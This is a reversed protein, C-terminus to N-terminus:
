AYKPRGNPMHKLYIKSYTPHSLIEQELKLIQDKYVEVRQNKAEQSVGGHSMLEIHVINETNLQVFKTNLQYLHYYVWAGVDQRVFNYAEHTQIDQSMLGQAKYYEVFNEFDPIDSVEFQFFNEDDPIHYGTFRAGTKMIWRKKCLLFTTELQPLRLLYMGKHINSDCECGLLSPMAYALSVNPDGYFKDKVESLWDPNTLIVDDHMLLYSDTHIWPLAMSFVEAYGVRSWVRIVTLPMPRKNHLNDSHYWEVNRLDELFEQKQDQNTPDGTRKDPGSINVCIHELMANPKSRLLLSFVSWMLCEIGANGTPIIATVKEKLHTADICEEINFAMQPHMKNERM